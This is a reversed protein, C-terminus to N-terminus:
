LNIEYIHTICYYIGALIFAIGALYRIWIEIQSLKNFLKGVYQTAYAMLIAFIIVPLSTAIGYTIPLILISEQKIALPILGAFFLGASVPCFSLAFLIGIPIAWLIGGTKAKAQLKDSGLQLSATSGIQGLLILGLIILIPGLAENMYKQLFRSLNASDLLGYTIIIGLTTYAVTRGLAYLLGSSIVQQKKGTKRGIFSIAAINTALPCPSIATIIGLAFASFIATLLM